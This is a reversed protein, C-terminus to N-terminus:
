KIGRRLPILEDKSKALHKPYVPEGLNMGLYTQGKPFAGILSFVNIAFPVDFKLAVSDHYSPNPYDKYLNRQKNSNLFM